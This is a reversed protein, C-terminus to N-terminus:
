KCYLNILINQNFISLYEDINKNEKPFLVDKEPYFTYWKLSIMPLPKIEKKM